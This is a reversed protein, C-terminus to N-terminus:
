DKWRFSGQVELRWADRVRKMTLGARQYRISRETGPKIREAATPAIPVVIRSAELGSIIGLGVALVDREELM